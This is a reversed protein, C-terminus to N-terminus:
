TLSIYKKFSGTVLYIIFVVPLIIAFLIFMIALFLIFEKHDVNYSIISGVSSMLSSFEVMAFIMIYLLIKRKKDM